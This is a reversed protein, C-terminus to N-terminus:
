LSNSSSNSAISSATTDSNRCIVVPCRARHLVHDSVSTSTFTRKLRGLGRSGLVILGANEHTAVNVIVDVPKGSEMLIKGPLGHENLKWRYKDEVAKIKQRQQEWSRSSLEDTLEVDDQETISDLDICHVIVIINEPRHIHTLYWDFAHEAQQSADVAVIVVIAPM